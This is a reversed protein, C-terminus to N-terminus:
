SQEQSYRLFHPPLDHIRTRNENLFCCPPPPLNVLDQSTGICVTFELQRLDPTLFMLDVGTRKKLQKMERLGTESLETSYKRIAFTTRQTRHLSKLANPDLRGLNTASVIM